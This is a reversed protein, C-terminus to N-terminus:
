KIKAAQETLIEVVKADFTDQQVSLNKPDKLYKSRDGLLDAIQFNLSNRKRQMEELYESKQAPTMKQMELPLSAEDIKDPDVLGSKWDVVLDGKGQIVKGGSSLNFAARDAAVSAQASTVANLKNITNQRTEPNGYVVVTTNLETIKKLIEADYPTDIIVMNGSQSLPIYAGNGLRAIEMWAEKTSPNGGCQITNIIVGAQVAEKCITPYLVDDTYNMHPPADGVLFIIKLVDPRDTWSMLNVAEHLAQNVSEPFDGGGAAKFSQLNRFVTDLDYSLDYVKTIYQEGRDRYAILGIRGEPALNLEVVKNAISWIKKKAGEILGSMSGTADLVFAVEVMMFKFGAQSEVPVIIICAILIVAMMTIKYNIM